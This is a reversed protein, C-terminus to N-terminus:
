RPEVLEIRNGFPDEVYARRERDREELPSAPVDAARCRELIAALGSVRFAPHAKRAPRFATEVGLHVRLAGRAFWCGGRAALDGPKAEEAFGLVDGYFARARSEGGPPMALQVHDIALVAPAADAALSADLRRELWLRRAGGFRAGEARLGLTRYLALAPENGESTTLGLKVAGRAAARETAASVLARGVGRRRAHSAVFLDEIECALGDGEADPRYRGLLFGVPAGDADEALLFESAGDTLLRAYAHRYDDAGPASESRADRFSVALRVLTELDASTAARLASTM